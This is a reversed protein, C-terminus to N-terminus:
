AAAARFVEARPNMVKFWLPPMLALVVMGPYGTPLQPSTQFSRLTQYKRHAHAHHDSHRTLEFLFYRSLRHDSNWSHEENVAEFKGPKRENRELGYHEVYNVAELLSFAIISQGLFALGLIPQVFAFLLAILLPVLAFWLMQNRWSWIAINARKLRDGEIHWASKWQGVVSRSWFRYFHEGFRATAPDFPTAVQAHHGFVHEISFHMYSVSSLLVKGLFQEVKDRRHILEHAITIGIGGNSIGLSFIVGAWEWSFARYPLSLLAYITLAWQLPVFVWLIMSYLLSNKAREEDESNLNEHDTGLLLEGLPILGFVFLIPFFVWLGGQYISLFTVAPIIYSALYKLARVNM